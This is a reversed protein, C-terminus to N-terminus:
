FWAGPKKFYSKHLQRYTQTKHTYAESAMFLQHHSKSKMPNTLYSRNNQLESKHGKSDIYHKPTAKTVFHM